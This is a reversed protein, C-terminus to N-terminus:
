NADLLEEEIKPAPIHKWSAVGLPIVVDRKSKELGGFEM